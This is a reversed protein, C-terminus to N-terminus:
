ARQYVVVADFQIREGCALVAPAKVIVHLVRANTLLRQIHRLARMCRLRINKYTQATVRARYSPSSAPATTTTTICGQLPRRRCACRDADLAAMPIAASSQSEATTLFRVRRLQPLRTM